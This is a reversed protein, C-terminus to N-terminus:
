RPAPGARRRRLELRLSEEGQRMAWGHNAAFVPRLLWDLARLGPKRAEVRWDSCAVEVPGEQWLTWEGRGAFDGADLGVRGRPDVETVRLRWRPTYPLWGKTWLAVERGVGTADGAAVECADHYASPWWDPLREPGALIEAVERVAAPVRWTTVLHYRSM